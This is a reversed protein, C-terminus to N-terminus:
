LPWESTRLYNLCLLERPWSASSYLWWACYVGKVAWNVDWQCAEVCVCV